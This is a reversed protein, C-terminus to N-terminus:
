LGSSAAWSEGSPFRIADSDSRRPKMSMQIQELLPMLQM